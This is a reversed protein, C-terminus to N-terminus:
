KRTCLYRNYEFMFASYFMQAIYNAGQPTFHIFDPVALPPDHFVWSPMSNQGGMAGFTDWYVCGNDFSARKLADRILPVTPDTIYSEGDKKSVDAIGIVIIKLDPAINKLTKLQYSFGRRYYDYDDRQAPVANGGFQLIMLKVNMSRIYHALMSMDMLTFSLGDAGRMPVNDVAVGTQGDFSFGYFEPSDKGEFEFEVKKPSTGFNWSLMDAKTGAPITKQDLLAGDALIKLTFPERNYGFLMRCRSFVKARAKSHPPDQFTLSAKYTSNGGPMLDPNIVSFASDRKLPSFRAFNGLIGYRRHTVTTDRRGFATYRAWDGYAQQIMPMTFGYAQVAPVLGPGNGGFQNQLKARCYGSIRDMEIQSDGFHMIRVLSKQTEGSALLEFFSNLVTKDGNPFELYQSVSDIRIPKAEFFVYASDVLVSDLGSEDDFEEELNELNTNALLSDMNKMVQKEPSFLDSLSVFELKQSDSIKIGDEPFIWSLGALVAFTILVFLLVSVPKM